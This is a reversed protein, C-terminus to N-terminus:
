PCQIQGRQAANGGVVKEQDERPLSGVLAHLAGEGEVIAKGSATAGPCGQPAVRGWGAAGTWGWGFDRQAASRRAAPRELPRRVRRPCPTAAPSPRQPARKRAPPACPRTCECTKQRYIEIPYLIMNLVVITFKFRDIM